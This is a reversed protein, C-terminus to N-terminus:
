RAQREIAVRGSLWDVGVLWTLNGGRISVRGGSSSGDPEFRIRGVSTPSLPDGATLLSLQLDDPLAQVPSNGRQYTRRSVDFVVTVGQDRMVAESRAERLAGSIAQAAARAHVAPSVRPQSSMILVTMLGIITLVVLMEILTFGSETSTAIKSRLIM